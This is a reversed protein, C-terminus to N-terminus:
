DKLSRNVTAHPMGRSLACAIDKACAIDVSACGCATWLGAGRDELLGCERSWGTVNRQMCLTRLYVELTLEHRWASRWRLAAM